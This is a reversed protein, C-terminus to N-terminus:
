HDGVARPCEIIVYSVIFYSLTLVLSLRTRLFISITRKIGTVNLKISSDIQRFYKNTASDNNDHMYVILFM